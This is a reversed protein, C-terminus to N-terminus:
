VTGKTDCQSRTRPSMSQTDGTRGEGHPPEPRDGPRSRKGQLTRESNDLVAFPPACAGEMLIRGERFMATVTKMIANESITYMGDLEERM